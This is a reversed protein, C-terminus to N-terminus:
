LLMDHMIHHMFSYINKTLCFVAYSIRMLSQLESTHEESRSIWAARSPLWGIRDRVPPLVNALGGISSDPPWLAQCSISAAPQRPRTTPSACTESCCQLKRILAPLAVAASTSVGPSVTRSHTFALLPM